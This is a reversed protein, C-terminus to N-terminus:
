DINIVNTDNPEENEELEDILTQYNKNVISLEKGTVKGGHCLPCPKVQKTFINGARIFNSGFCCLCIESEYDSPTKM